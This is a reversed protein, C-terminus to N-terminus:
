DFLAAGFILLVPVLVILQAILIGIGIGIGTQVTRTLRVFPVDSNDYRGGIRVNTIPTEQRAARQQAGEVGYRIRDAARTAPPNTNTM